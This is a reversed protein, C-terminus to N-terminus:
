INIDWKNLNKIIIKDDSFFEISKSTCKPYVTSSMVREGDQIFVEVSIRDIFIRLKLLNNKLLVKTKRVQNNELPDDINDIKEGSHSRDFAFIGECRDYYMITQEDEGKLVKIGFKNAKQADIELELEINQGEIGQLSINNYVTVNTYNIYNRRYKTIEDVPLQYLKGNVIKLQRPLTMAGAWKHNKYNTPITRGWMQMWAIMIRRGNNDVLTQPAYFDFGYDIEDIYAHTFSGTEFNMDGIMYISSFLNNFKYEESDLYQSSLIFIYKDDLKFLDPCEWMKGLKNNSKNVVAVYDWNLLDKSKYLLVQGSSDINRSAIVAYYNDDQKFVKPDRFDQPLAFSPLDNTSIVPNQRVKTFNVGDDSIAINQVERINEPNDPDPNTHGTYMIYLKGDKEIASGSFCGDVDYYMDPALAIPMYEWKILDDSAVHGWYIPGWKSDFPYHQYFLHYKDRYYIFGNPDNMWGIEPMVHYKMRFYPNVNDKNTKIYDNAKSLKTM